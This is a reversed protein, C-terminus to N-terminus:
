KKMASAVMKKKMGKGTPVNGSEARKDYEGSLKAIKKATKKAPIAVKKSAADKKRNSGNAKEMEGHAYESTYGM